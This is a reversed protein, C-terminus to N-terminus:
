SQGGFGGSEGFPAVQRYPGVSGWDKTDVEFSEIHVLATPDTFQVTFQLLKWKAPSFWARYKTLAGGTSPLSIPNPAYSGNGVDAVGPTLIIAANSAYEITFGSCHEYGVGGIAGTQVVATPTESGSSLMNRVTSDVCGALVGQTSMGDSSAHCTTRPVSADWVWSGNEIDFVITHQVADVGLYDYYLYQAVIAFQQSQPFTDDPPYITVGARTVAKGPQGEHPFIPYLNEDTISQSSAGGQSMHIGDEVRFAILGGGQVAICRPMYLGRSISTAQLTWTSGQTGTVTALANFFNPVIIWARKISFLVGLGGSMAGNVLAESPDTVELQNTDPASDLNSGKCWYLTGPRLPDGVAFVFNINDTPGFMYPLPQQALAPEAINWVLNTGDPIKHVTPDNNTMDWSTTTTPRRVASYALQTPSGILIITGPLWRINFTDGSVWTLVQASANLIGKRQLDISPFPEFNDFQLIPNTAVALDSLTDNFPASTNPNTGVYTSNALGGGQRYFDIKDVQPDLSATPTINANQTSYYVTVRFYDLFSRDTGGVSQTTIQVGFGFSNDNVITPNLAAGWTDGNGGQLADTAFSQNPTNPFKPLGIQGGLYYLAVGSLVGTGSNQGVWNLDVMVGDISVGAPIAFGFNHAFVYDTVTGPAVSGQTRLQSGVLQYQAANLTIKTPYDVANVQAAPSSQSNTGPISVPSPNSVAGTESARYVYYYYIQSPGTGGGPFSTSAAIQPEKIGTKRTLGDSRVKVMGSCHFAGIAVNPSPAADGVYAWPQVSTNPRFPVVSIPNGTLGSAVQAANCWLAGLADVAILSYGSGPGAPTSDNLREITKVAASLTLIANTLVARMGFSGKLLARVNQALAVFGTRLRNAPRAIDLGKFTARRPDPM